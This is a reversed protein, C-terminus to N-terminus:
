LELLLYWPKASKRTLKVDKGSRGVLFNQSVLPFRVPVAASTTDALVVEAGGAGNLSMTTQKQGYIAAYRVVVDYLAQAKSYITVTVKDGETDFGQVFGTGLFGTPSTGVTVGNLIGSEAQVVAGSSVDVVVIPAAVVPAATVSDIFYWGWDNSFKVTNTSATLAFTGIPSSAWTSTTVNTIAVESGAGGNVSVTTFKDGYQASYKVSLDYNGAAFGTLSV